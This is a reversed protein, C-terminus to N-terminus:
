QAAPTAESVRGWLFLWGCTFIVVWALGIWGVAEIVGRAWPRLRLLGLASVAVALGVLMQAMAAAGFHRFAADLIRAPALSSLASGPRFLDGLGGLKWLLYGTLSSVFRLLGLVLWVVGIVTVAGPREVAAASEVSEPTM